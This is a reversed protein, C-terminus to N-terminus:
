HCTVEDIILNYEDLMHKTQVSPPNKGDFKVAVVDEHAQTAITGLRFYLAHTCVLSKGQRILKEAHDSKRGDADVPQTLRFGSIKYAGEIYRDIESLSPVVTLYNEGKRFRSLIESSKGYGCPRDVIRIHTM